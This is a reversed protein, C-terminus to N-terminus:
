RSAESSSALALPLGVKRGSVASEAGPPRNVAQVYQAASFRSYRIIPGPYVGIVLILAVLPALAALELPVIDVRGLRRIATRVSLASDGGPVLLPGQTVGQYVRLMYWCALIVGLSAVVAWVPSVQFAGLLILFEGVFSNMLPMGLGALAVVLFVGAMVPM